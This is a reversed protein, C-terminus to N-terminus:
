GRFPQFRLPSKQWNCLADELVQMGVLLEKDLEKLWIDLSKISVHSHPDGCFLLRAGIKPGTSDKIYASGPDIPALGLKGIMTLYDFKATRGFSAVMDMSCYLLDFAERPNKGAQLYFDLFLTEHTRPPSVWQVYTEIAAGTGTSTNPHLSQYKRHNGFGGPVGKIDSLNRTLWDRFEMPDKSTNEWDWLEGQGLRGYIAKLYSWGNRRHKGFHTFLFVLWFAEEMNGWKAHLVAARLPDFMTDDPNARRPSSKKNRIITVYKIRRISELLQEVLCLRMRRDMVGPLSRSNKCYAALKEELKWGAEIDKPRVTLIERLASRDM